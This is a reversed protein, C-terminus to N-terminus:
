SIWEARQIVHGDRADLILLVGQGNMPGLQWGLNVLWVEDTPAPPPGEIPAGVEQLEKWTGLQAAQVDEDAWGPEAARAAAIAQDRTMVPRPWLDDVFSCGAVVVVVALLLSRAVAPRWTM